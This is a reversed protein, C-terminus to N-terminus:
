FTWNAHGSLFVSRTHDYSGVVDGRGGLAVPLPSHKNVDLTFGYMYEAAVGWSFHKDERTHLGLGIRWTRNTPLMTSVSGGEQFGDDYAIGLDYTHKDDARVQAGLAGHWTNRFDIATQVIQNGEVGVDVRGFRSWQQWGISGLVTWRPDVQHVISAQVSQPVTVGLDLQTHLLGRRGLEDNLIPGLNRFQTTPSFDLNVESTYTVGVRTNENFEYLVGLNVGLGWVEDNLKFEGDPMRPLLTNVAVETTLIGYMINLSAGFSLHDNVKYAASPLLSLGLLTAEKGYYRGVWHDDYKVGLGFNGAFGFGVKFNPTITQSSFLSGGPFWGIANGGNGGDVTSGQRQSFFVDGYLLQGGAMIQTDELRTMGAPNTLVTSADQARATYGASALGVDRSGIEYLTLGGALAPGGITALVAASAARRLVKKHDPPHSNM